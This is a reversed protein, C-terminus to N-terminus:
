PSPVVVQLGAWSEGAERTYRADGIRVLVSDGRPELVYFPLRTWGLFEAGAATAAVRQRIQERENRAIRERVPSLVPSAFWRFDAVSYEDGTRYVVRRRLPNAPMPEVMLQEVRVGRASLERAVLSRAALSLVCMLVVYAAVMGVALRAPRSVWRPPRRLSPGRSAQRGRRRALFVGAGLLLWMWPDIIFLSDGYSWAGSFPMFWRMGYTNMWDLIPHTLISLASLLLLQAATPPPKAAGVRPSEGRSRHWLLMLGALLFPLLILAPIGHTLGRRFGLGHGFPVALVDIDPFNAGIMLTATGLATRRKLGTEALAAGVLTHCINDMARSGVPETPNQAPSARIRIRRGM